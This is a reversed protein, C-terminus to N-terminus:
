LAGGAAGSQGARGLLKALEAELPGRMAASAECFGVRGGSGLRELDAALRGVAAGCRLNGDFHRCADRVCSAVLVADHDRLAEAVAAGGVSGCCPVPKLDVAVGELAPSGEALLSQAAHYASNECAIIQLRGKAADTAAGKAASDSIPKVSVEGQFEIAKAPCIAACIGCADCAAPDVLMAAAAADPGLAAHPCARYCTYCFACKAPDVKAPKEARTVAASLLGKAAADLSNGPFMTADLRYVGKRSTATPHLWYRGLTDAGGPMRLGLKRCFGELGPAAAVAASLIWSSHISGEGDPSAFRVVGKDVNVSDYRATVVGARRAEAYLAEVGRDATRWERALIAAGHKRRTAELGRRLAAATLSPPSEEGGDLVVVLPDGFGRRDLGRSFAADDAFEPDIAADTALVALDASRRAGGLEYSLAGPSGSVPGLEAPDTVLDVEAGSARFAEAFRDAASAPSTALLVRM